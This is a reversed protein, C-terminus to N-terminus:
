LVLKKFRRVVRRIISSNEADCFQQIRTLALKSEVFEDPFYVLHSLNLRSSYSTADNCNVGSMDLGINEVYTISPNLCLANHEFITVYWFVGWTNVKGSANNKVQKWFNCKGDLNFRSIKKADWEALLRNPAKEFYKWRDAWTAWGWCFMARSFYSQPLGDPDIPYNWGSIHWVRQVNLYHDLARNMFDLFYRSTVIDDELVIIRGHKNVVLTVGDIISRSLGFNTGREIITVSSFGDIQRIYERIERVAETAEFNIPADSFIYLDSESALDNKLLAEITNRTHMPRNYVFLAIPALNM